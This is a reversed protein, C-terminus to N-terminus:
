RSNYYREGNAAKLNESKKFTNKYQGSLVKTAKYLDKGWKPLTDNVAFTGAVNGYKSTGCAIDLHIAKGGM